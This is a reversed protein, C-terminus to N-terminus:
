KEQNKQVFVHSKKENYQIIYSMLTKAIKVHPAPSSFSAEPM